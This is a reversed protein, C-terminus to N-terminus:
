TPGSARGSTQRNLLQLTLIFSSDPEIAATPAILEMSSKTEVWSWEAEDWVTAIRGALAEATEPDAGRGLGCAMCVARAFM